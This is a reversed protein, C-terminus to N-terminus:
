NYIVAMIVNCVYLIILHIVLRVSHIPVRPVFDELILLMLLSAYKVFMLIILVICVLLIKAHFM